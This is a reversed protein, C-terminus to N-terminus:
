RNSPEVCGFLRYDRPPRIKRKPHFCIDPNVTEAKLLASVQGANSLEVQLVTKGPSVSLTRNSLRIM